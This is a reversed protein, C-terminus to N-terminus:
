KTILGKNVMDDIISKSFDSSLASASGPDFSRVQASYQLENKDADYFNAELEYNTSTTYYGPSYVRDYLVRYNRTWRSRVIAYPTRSVSAPTYNEEQNKDLLALIIIGDFGDDKVLKTAEEDSMNQFTRPGYKSSATIANINYENIKKAVANEVSERIERDKAGTLGIVLVKKYQHATAGPLSWSSILRASSCAMILVSCITFVAYLYKKM